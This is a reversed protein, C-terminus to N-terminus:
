NLSYNKLLPFYLYTQDQCLGYMWKIFFEFKLYNITFHFKNKEIGSM